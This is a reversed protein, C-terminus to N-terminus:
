LKLAWPLLVRWLTTAAMCFPVVVGFFAVFKQLGSSQGFAKSWVVFVFVNITIQCFGAIIASGAFINTFNAIVFFAFGTAGSIAMRRANNM